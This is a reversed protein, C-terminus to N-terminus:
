YDAVTGDDKACNLASIGPAFSNAQDQTVVIETEFSCPGKDYEIEAGYYALIAPWNSVPQKSQRRFDNSGLKWGHQKLITDLTQLQSAVISPDKPYTQLSMSIQARVNCFFRYLTPDGPECYAKGPPSVILGLPQLSSKVIPWDSLMESTLQSKDRNKAFHDSVSHMADALPSWLVIGVLLVIALTLLRSWLKPLRRRKIRYM